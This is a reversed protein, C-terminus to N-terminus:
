PTPEGKGQSFLPSVLGGVFQGVFSWVDPAPSKTVVQRTTKGGPTTTVTETTTQCCAICLCLALLIPRYLITM